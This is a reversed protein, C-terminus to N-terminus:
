SHEQELAKLYDEYSTIALPGLHLPSRMVDELSTLHEIGLEEELQWIKGYDPKPRDLMHLHVHLRSWGWLIYVVAALYCAIVIAAIM